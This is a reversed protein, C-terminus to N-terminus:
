KNGNPSDSNNGLTASNKPLRVTFTSGVGYQSAFTLEGGHLEVLGKSISLGLGTGGIRRVAQDNARFFREFLKEQDAAKIGIGTDSIAVNVWENSQIVEVTVGGKSTYKYANSLLNLLVQNIRNPDLYLQPLGNKSQVTLSLNRSEFEHRVIKAANDVLDALDVWQCYLEIEGVEMRSLDILENALKLLQKVSVNITQLYDYGTESVFGRETTLLVNVYGQIASMPTRLEHSVMGLFLDKAKELEAEKTFDRLVMVHGADEPKESAGPLIVPAINASVTRDDWKFRVNNVEAPKQGKMWNRILERAKGEITTLFQALTFAQLDRRALRSAAPNAMIVEQNADFVLVGDAISELITKNQVAMTHVQRLATALEQTREQVRQDLEANLLRLDQIAREMSRGALWAALAIIFFVIVSFPDPVIQAYWAMGIIMVSVFGAAAFSAYSPFLVSALIIPIAFTLLTRGAVVEEPVDAFIFIVTLFIIFLLRALKGSGYRNLAFTLGTFVAAAIGTWFALMIAEPSATELIFAVPVAVIALVALIFFGVLFINLLRSRRREDPDASPVDLQTKIFETIKTKLNAM